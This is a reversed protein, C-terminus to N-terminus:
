RDHNAQGAFPDWREDSAEYDLVFNRMKSAAKVGYKEGWAPFLSDRDPYVQVAFTLALADALDTSRGDLRQKITEKAELKIRGRADYEYTPATLESKLATNNPLRGGGRLWDRISTWMEARRNVFMEAKLAQSGFPVEIIHVPSTATLGRVLDIVGTGQGQDICVYLPKVEAIYAMLRNAVDNNSLHTLVVPEYAYMGRRAFFVTADDGFRAVDVGVVVPWNQQMELDVPAAIAANVEDILILVNDCSASFDCLMEQRFTNESLESKLREVESAPLANTETVPFSLALWNADGKAEREAAQEYLDSFLNIGKPTGIFLAWGHRDSLAPQVTEFWVEPKMQAVEDLIIGDFYLGRLADPNDAGFIRIVSGSPSANSPLSISLEGENIKRLPITVSYHKLYNWAVAKAQNRLPGVYAFLGRPKTCLMAQKIM